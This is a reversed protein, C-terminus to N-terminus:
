QVRFKCYSAANSSRHRVKEDESLEVSTGADSESEEDFFDRGREDRHERRDCFGPEVYNEAVLRETESVAKTGSFLSATHGDEGVGLITLDFSPYKVKGPCLVTRIEKEYEEAALRPDPFGTRVPHVNKPPIKIRSILNKRVNGFNSGSEQYSVYREDSFFIHVHNWDVMEEYPESGLLSYFAQPTVGGSLAVNFTGKTIVAEGAYRVFRETAVRYIEDQGPCLVVEERSSLIM